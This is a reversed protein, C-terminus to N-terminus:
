YSKGDKYRMRRYYRGNGKNRGKYTDTQSHCNPCILSLNSIDNNDSNGDNHELELVIKKGNWDSIGCICCKYGYLSAIYKKLTAKGPYIGYALYNDIRVNYRYEIDCEKSCFKNKSKIEKGCNKCYKM